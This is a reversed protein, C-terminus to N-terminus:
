LVPKSTVGQLSIGDIVLTNTVIDLSNGSEQQDAGFSESCQIIVAEKMRITRTKKGSGDYCSVVAELRRSTDGSAAELVFRSFHPCSIFVDAAPAASDGQRNYSYTVSTVPFSHTVGARTLSLVVRTPGAQQASTARVTLAIVIILVLLHRM